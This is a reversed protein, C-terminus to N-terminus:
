HAEKAESKVHARLWGEAQAEAFLIDEASMRPKISTTGDMQSGNAVAIKFWMYASVYDQITGRGDRCLQGMM